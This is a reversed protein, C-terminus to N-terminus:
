DRIALGWDGIRLGSDRTGLGSRLGRLPQPCLRGATRPAAQPAGRHSLETGTTSVYYKALMNPREWAPLAKRDRLFRLFETTVQAFHAEHGVRFADPIVVHIDGGREDVSV